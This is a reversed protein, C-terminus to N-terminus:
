RSLLEVTQDKLKPVVEAKDLESLPVIEEKYDVRERTSLGTLIEEVTYVVIDLKVNIDNTDYLLSVSHMSLHKNVLQMPKQGFHHELLDFYTTENLTQFLHLYSLLTELSVEQDFALYLTYKIYDFKEDALTLNHEHMQNTLADIGEKV